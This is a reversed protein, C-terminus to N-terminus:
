NMRSYLRYFISFQLTFTLIQIIKKKKPFVFNFQFVSEEYGFVFCSLKKKNIIEGWWKLPSEFLLIEKQESGGM